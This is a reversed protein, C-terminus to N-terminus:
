SRTFDHPKWRQAFQLVKKRQEEFPERFPKRWRRPELDMMGGLIERGFYDPFKQENEIVHAFGGQMGFDVSFYPLGKPVARRIDKQSLDVLKTNMAWEEDSEQIAKKFYIPAMDGLERALPVCEYVMHPRRKLHMNAEMFVCDEDQEAFMKVLARRFSQIEAWIDEDLMNGSSFHQLPAILCHGEALSQQSPLRLYVKSGVAVVLHKPLDASDFCHNCKAMEGVLRRHEEMARQKHREDERGTSEGKAAKSVFMDDLTFYERDTKEAFKSLRAFMANQDEATSMRERRVLEQLSHQDDDGFYRAREGAAHTEVPRNKRRGGRPEAFHAPASVPWSQGARDTRYLLVDTEDEAGRGRAAGTAKTMQQSAAFGPQQTQNQKVKRAEELQAKLKDALEQNGLLEAKVLRAGLQNMEGESLVQLPAAPTAEAVLAVPASEAADTTASSKDKPRDDAAQKLSPESREGIGRLHARQKTEQRDKEAPSESREKTQDNKAVEKRQPVTSSSSLVDKANGGGGGGDDDDRPRRFASRPTEVSRPEKLALGSRLFADGDDDDSPKMFKSKLSCTSTNITTRVDPSRRSWRVGEREQDREKHGDRQGRHRDPSGHSRRERDQDGDRSWDRRSGQYQYRSREDDRRGDRQRDRQEGRQGDRQTDRQRDRDMDSGASRGRDKEQTGDVDQKGEGDEHSDRDTRDRHREERKWAPPTSSNNAATKRWRQGGRNYFRQSAATREAESLMSYFKEKCGYREELVEDLSRQEKDAQEQMRQRARRLWSLGGDGVPSPGQSAGSTVSQESEQPPLGTGGNKWYPNLERAHVGPKDIADRIEKDLEKAKQKESKVDTRSYSKMTLFDFNMWDDRVLPANVSANVADASRERTSDSSQSSGSAAVANSEVWEEESASTSDSASDSKEVQKSKKKKEKKSKKSKEKKKKHKKGHEKEMEELRENVAPLMWTDEGRLRKQEKRKQDREYEAKVQALVGRRAERKQERREDINQTSEFFGGYSAM